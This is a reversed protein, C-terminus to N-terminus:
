KFTRNIVIIDEIFSMSPVSLLEKGNLLSSITEELLINCNCNEGTYSAKVVYSGQIWYFTNENQIKFVSHEKLLVSLLPYDVVLNDKSIIVKSGNCVGDYYIKSMTKKSYYHYHFVNCGINERVIVIDYSDFLKSLKFTDNHRIFAPAILYENTAFIPEVNLILGQM